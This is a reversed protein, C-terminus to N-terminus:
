ARSRGCRAGALPVVAADNRRQRGGHIPAAAAAPAWSSFPPLSFSIPTLTEPPQSCPTKDERYESGDMLNLDVALASRAAKLGLHPPVKGVWAWTVAQAHPACKAASGPGLRAAAAPGFRSRSRLALPGLWKASQAAVATPPRAAPHATHTSPCATPQSNKLQQALHCSHM